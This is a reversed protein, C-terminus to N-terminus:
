SAAIAVAEGCGNRTAPGRGHLPAHACSAARVRDTGLPYVRCPAVLTRSFPRTRSEATYSLTLTCSYGPTYVNKM